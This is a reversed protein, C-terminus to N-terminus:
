SRSKSRSASSHKAKYKPLREYADIIKDIREKSYLGTAEFQKRLDELSPYEFDDIPESLTVVWENKKSFFDKWEIATKKIKTRKEDLVSEKRINEFTYPVVSTM